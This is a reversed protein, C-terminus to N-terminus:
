FRCTLIHCVFFILINVTHRYTKVRGRSLNSFIKRNNQCAQRILLHRLAPMRMSHTSAPMTLFLHPLGLCTRYPRYRCSFFYYSLHISRTAYIRPIYVYSNRVIINNQWQCMCIHCFANTEIYWPLVRFWGLWFGATKRIWILKSYNLSNSWSRDLM